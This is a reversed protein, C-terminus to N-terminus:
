RTNGKSASEGESSELKRLWRRPGKWLGAKYGKSVVLWQVWYAKEGAACDVARAGIRTVRTVIGIFDEANIHYVLDGTKITSRTAKFM